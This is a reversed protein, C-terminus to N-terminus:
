SQCEWPKRSNSDKYNRKAGYHNKLAELSCIGDYADNAGIDGNNKCTNETIQIRLVM